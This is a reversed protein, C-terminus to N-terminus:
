LPKMESYQKEQYFLAHRGDFFMSMKNRCLNAIKRMAEERNSGFRTVAFIFHIPFDEQDVDTENDIDDSSVTLESSDINDLFDENIRM